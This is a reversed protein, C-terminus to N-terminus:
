NTLQCILKDTNENHIVTHIDITYLQDIMKGDAYCFGTYRGNIDTSFSCMLKIVCLSTPIHNHNGLKIKTSKRPINPTYKLCVKNPDMLSSRIPKMQIEHLFHYYRNALCQNKKCFICEMTNSLYNTVETSTSQYNTQQHFYLTFAPNIDLILYGSYHNRQSKNRIFNLQQFDRNRHWIKHTSAM